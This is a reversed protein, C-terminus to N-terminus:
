NWIIRWYSPRLLKSNHSWVFEHSSRSDRCLSISKSEGLFDLFNWFRTELSPSVNASVWRGSMWVFAIYCPCQCWEKKIMNPSLLSTRSTERILWSWSSNWYNLSTEYALARLLKIADYSQYSIPNMMGMLLFSDKKFELSGFFPPL